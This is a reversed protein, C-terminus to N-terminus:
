IISWIKLLFFKRFIKIFFTIKKSFQKTLAVFSSLKKGWIVFMWQFFSYYTLFIVWYINIYTWTYLYWVSNAINRIEHFRCFFQWVFDANQLNHFRRYCSILLAIIRLFTVIYCSYYRNESYVTYFDCVM